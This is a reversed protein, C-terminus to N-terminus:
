KKHKVAARNGRIELVEVIAGEPIFEGSTSSAAWLEREIRVQGSGTAPDIAQIVRAEQGVLADLNM